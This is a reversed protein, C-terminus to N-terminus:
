STSFQTLYGAPLRKGLATTQGSCRLCCGFAPSLEMNAREAQYRERPGASCGNACVFLPATSARVASFRAAHIGELLHLLDSFPRVSHDVFGLVFDGALRDSQLFDPQLRLNLRRTVRNSSALTFM